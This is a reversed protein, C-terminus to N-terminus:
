DIGFGCGVGCASFEDFAGKEVPLVQFLQISNFISTATVNGMTWTSTLVTHVINAEILCIVTM